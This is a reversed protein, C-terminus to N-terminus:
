EGGFAPKRKERLAELVEMRDRTRTPFRQYCSREHVLGEEVTEEALGKVVAEKEATLALPPKKNIMSVTSVDVDRWICMVDALFERESLSVQRWVVRGTWRLGV